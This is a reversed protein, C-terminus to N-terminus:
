AKKQTVLKWIRWAPIPHGVELPPIGGYSGCSGYSGAPIASASGCTGELMLRFQELMGLSNSFVTRTM